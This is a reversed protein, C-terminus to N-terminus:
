STRRKPTHDFMGPGDPGPWSYDRLNEWRELPHGKVQGMNTYITDWRCGWIDIRQGEQTEPEKWGEPARFGMGAFDSFGMTGFSFPIREPKQFTMARHVIEYSTM